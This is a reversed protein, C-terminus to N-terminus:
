ARQLVAVAQGFGSQTSSVIELPRWRPAADAVFAAATYYGCMLNSGEPGSRRVVFGREALQRAMGAAAPTAEDFFTLLALGGPRVLRALEDMWARVGPRYLHTFVSVSYVLDFTAEPFPAPPDPTSLRFDGPLHTACWSVLKPNIDCGSLRRPAVGAPDEGSLFYRAVRGCGCGFDLIRLPEGPSDSHAAILREFREAVLRGSNLFADADATGATLVRLYPPPLGPGAIPQGAPGSPAIAQLREYIRFAPAALGVM